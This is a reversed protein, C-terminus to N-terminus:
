VADTLHSPSHITKHLYQITITTLHRNGGPPLPLRRHHVHQLPRQIRMLLRSGPCAARQSQGPTRRVCTGVSVCPSCSCPARGLAPGSCCAAAPSPPSPTCLQGSCILSGCCGSNATQLRWCSFHSPKKTGTLFGGLPVHHKAKLM